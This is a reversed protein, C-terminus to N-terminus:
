PCVVVEQEPMEARPRQKEGSNLVKPIIIWAAILVPIGIQLSRKVYKNM